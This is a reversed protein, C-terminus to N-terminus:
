EWHLPLLWWQLMWGMPEGSFCPSMNCTTSSIILIVPQLIFWVNRCDQCKSLEDLAVIVIYRPINPMSYISRYQLLYIFHSFNDFLWHIWGRIWSPRPPPPPHPAALFMFYLAGRITAMKKHSTKVPVPPMAGKGGGGRSGCSPNIKFRCQNAHHQLPGYGQIHIKYTAIITIM